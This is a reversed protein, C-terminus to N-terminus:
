VQLMKIRISTVLRGTVGRKSEVQLNTNELRKLSSSQQKAEEENDIERITLCCAPECGQSLLHISVTDFQM